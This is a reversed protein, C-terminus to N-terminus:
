EDATMLMSRAVEHMQRDVEDTLASLITPALELQEWADARRHGPPLFLGIGERVPYGAGCGACTAAAAEIQRGDREWSEWRLAGHCAPCVLLDTVVDLM